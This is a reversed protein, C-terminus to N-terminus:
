NEVPSKEAHDVVLVDLPRRRAELVLGLQERLATSLSPGAPPETATTTDPAWELRFEYQGTLGTANVVTDREFRSLLTALLELTMGGAVIRGRTAPNRGDNGAGAAAQRLKVGGKAPVLALMPLVRDEHHVVVKLREALLAQLMKQVQERSADPSTQAVIDFRVAKSRIWPEGVLQADAVIGYAFKLCDSLSANALTLRGNRLQGLNINISDGEPPPSVKLTAVEFEPGAALGAGTLLLLAAMAKFM